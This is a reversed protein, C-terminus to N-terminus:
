LDAATRVPDAADGTAHLVGLQKCRTVKDAAHQSSCTKGRKGADGFPASSGLNV